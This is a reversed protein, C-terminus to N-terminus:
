SGVGLEEVGLNASKKATATSPIPLKRLTIRFTSGGPGSAALALDGGHAEVAGKAIALGLGAGPTTGSAAPARYFRDFIRDRAAPDVGPGTDAVELTAAHPTEGVRITIRAGPPSFKVANDVLNIVAQRLMVRDALALPRDTGEVRLAQRKEEALVGLHGAVEEALDRLDLPHLSLKAQGTEARSLTLLRDVLSALRDVEELM